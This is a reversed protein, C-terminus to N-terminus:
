GESAAGKGRAEDLCSPMAQLRTQIQRRRANFEEQTGDFGTAAAMEYDDGLSVLDQISKDDWGNARLTARREREAKAGGGPAAMTEGVGAARGAKPIGEQVGTSSAGHGDSYEFYVTKGGLVRCEVLEDPGFNGTSVSDAGTAGRCGTLLLAALALAMIRSRTM